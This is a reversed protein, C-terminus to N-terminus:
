NSSADHAISSTLGCGGAMITICTQALLKEAFIM